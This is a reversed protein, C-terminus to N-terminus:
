PAVRRLSKSVQPKADAPRLYLPHVTSAPADRLARLLLFAANPQLAPLIADAAYGADQAAAAVLAAGSGALTIKEESALEAAQAISLLEPESRADAQDFVQVYVQGRHADVAVVLPCAIRSPALARCAEEAMVELSSLGVLATGTALRLARAAAIGIRTGTFTGPGRTVAIRDLDSFGIGAKAMAREVMPMLREAQGTSMPEISAEIAERASGMDVGVAM